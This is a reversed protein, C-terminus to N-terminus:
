ELFQLCCRRLKLAQGHQTVPHIGGAGAGIGAIPDAFSALACTVQDLQAAEHLFGAEDIQGVIVAGCQETCEQFECVPQLLTFVLVCTTGFQECAPATAAEAGELRVLIGVGRLIPLLIALVCVTATVPRSRARCPQREGRGCVPM